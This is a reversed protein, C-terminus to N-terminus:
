SLPRRDPMVNFLPGLFDEALETAKVRADIHAVVANNLEEYQSVRIRHASSNTAAAAM